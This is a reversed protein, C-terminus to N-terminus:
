NLYGVFLVYDNFSTQIRIEFYRPYFPEIM